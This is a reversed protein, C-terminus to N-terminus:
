RNRPPTISCCHYGGAQMLLQRFAGRAADPASELVQHPLGKQYGNVSAATMLASRLHVDGCGKSSFEVAVYSPRDVHVPVGRARDPPVEIEGDFVLRPPGVALLFLLAAPLV